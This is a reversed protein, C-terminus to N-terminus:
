YKRKKDGERIEEGLKKGRKLGVHMPMSLWVKHQKYGDEPQVGRPMSVTASATL